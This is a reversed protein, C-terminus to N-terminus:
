PLSAACRPPPASWATAFRLLYGLLSADRRATPPPLLRMAASGAAVVREVAASVRRACIRSIPAATRGLRSNRRAFYMQRHAAINRRRTACRAACWTERGLETFPHLHCALCPTLTSTNWRTAPLARAASVSPSPGRWLCRCRNSPSSVLDYTMPERYLPQGIPMMCLSV